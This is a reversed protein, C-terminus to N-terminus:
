GQPATLEILKGILAKAEPSDWEADGTVRGVERGERDLLLTVPLGIAGAERALKMHADQYVGLHEVGIEDFFERIREPGGRDMSLAVVALDAGAMAGALRDLSPMEARCPPCWTAWLNLVVVKGAFDALRVRNGEGDLFPVEISAVPVEHLVLKEMEGQRLAELAALDDGDLGTDEANAGLAALGYLLAGIGARLPSRM